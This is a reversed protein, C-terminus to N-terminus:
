QVSREEFPRTRCSGIVFSAAGAGLFVDGISVVQAGIPLPIVDGLWAVKTEDGSPQHFGDDAIAKADQDVAEAGAVSVPMGGNLAVVALNCFTGVLVLSMGMRRFNVGAFTMLLLSSGLWAVIGGGRTAWIGLTGGVVLLPLYRPPYRFLQEIGGTIVGWTAAGAIVM